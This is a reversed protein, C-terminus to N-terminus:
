GGLVLDSLPQKQVPQALDQVLRSGLFGAHERDQAGPELVDGRLKLHALELRGHAQVRLRQLSVALDAQPHDPLDVVGRDVGHLADVQDQEDVAQRDGGDFELRVERLVDIVGDLLVALVPQGAVALVLVLRQQGEAAAGQHVEGDAVVLDLHGGLELALVGVEQGEVEAVVAVGAVRDVGLSRGGAVEPFLDQLAVGPQVDDALEQVQLDAVLGVGDGALPFDALGQQEGAVVLPVHDVLEDLGGAGLAGAVAVQDLVGGAGALGVGDGPGRVLEAGQVAGVVLLDEVGDDDHGVPGHQVGLQLVRDVLDLVLGADHNGDAAVGAGLGGFEGGRQHCPRRDDDDGDLGEGERQLGDGFGLGQLAPVEGDDRVLRV